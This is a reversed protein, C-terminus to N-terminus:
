EIDCVPSGKIIPATAIIKGVGDMVFNITVSNESVKVTAPIKGMVITSAIGDKTIFNIDETSNKVVPSTSDPFTVQWLWEFTGKWEANMLDEGCTGLVYNAGWEANIMGGGFPGSDSMSPSSSYGNFCEGSKWTSGENCEHCTDEPLQVKGGDQLECCGISCDGNTWKGNVSKHECMGKTMNGVTCQYECCGEQCEKNKACSGSTWKDVPYIGVEESCMSKEMEQCTPLCCGISGAGEIEDSQDCGFFIGVMLILGAMIIMKQFKNKKM